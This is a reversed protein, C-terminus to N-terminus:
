GQTLSKQFDDKFIIEKDQPFNVSSKPSSEIGRRCPIDENGYIWHFKEKGL